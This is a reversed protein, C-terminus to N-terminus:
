IKSVFDPESKISNKLTDGHHTSQIKVRQDIIVIRNDALVLVIQRRPRVPNVLVRDWSQVKPFLDPALM